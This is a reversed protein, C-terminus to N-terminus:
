LWEASSFSEELRGYPFPILLLSVYPILPTWRETGESKISKRRWREERRIRRKQGLKEAREGLCWDREEEM